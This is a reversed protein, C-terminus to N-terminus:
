ASSTIPALPHDREVLLGTALAIEARGELDARLAISLAASVAIVNLLAFEVLGLAFMANPGFRLLSGEEPRVGRALDEAIRGPWTREKTTPPAPKM